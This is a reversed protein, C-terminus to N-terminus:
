NKYTRMVLCSPNDVKIEVGTETLMGSEKDCKLVVINNSSVNAVLVYQGTPDLTFNRPREGLTSHHGVLKLTGNEQNISFIALTNEDHLRNSIYVFKGDRSIHVDAAGYNPYEKSYSFYRDILNLKGDLYTYAALTGSLEEVCYAFEGNPHFAMHRPGGASATKVTLLDNIILRPNQDDVVNFARIKDAGLDPVFVYKGDPSFNASHLHASEQRGPMVSKDIFEISQRAPKLRGKKDCSFLTVVPDTYCAVAVLNGSPHVDVYVPNRGGVSQENMWKIHGKISDIKFATLLGSTEQKTNTCVYLYQGNPSVDLFSPNILNKGEGLKNLAGTQTNFEYIYIGPAPKGDTYSGVFLLTKTSQAWAKTVSGLGFTEVLIFLVFWIYSYRKM